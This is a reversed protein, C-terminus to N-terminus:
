RLVLAQNGMMTKITVKYDEIDMIKNKASKYIKQYAEDAKFPQGDLILIEENSAEQDFLKMIDSLETKTVMSEQIVFMM